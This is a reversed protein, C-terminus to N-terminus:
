RSFESRRLSLVGVETIVAKCYRLKWSM